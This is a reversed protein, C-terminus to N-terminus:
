FLGSLSFDVILGSAAFECLAASILVVSNWLLWLFGRFDLLDFWWNLLGSWWCDFGLGGGEFRLVCLWM